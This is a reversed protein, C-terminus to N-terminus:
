QRTFEELLQRRKTLTVPRPPLPPRNRGVATEQNEGIWFEGVYLPSRNRVRLGKHLVLINSREPDATVVFDSIGEPDITATDTEVRFRSGGARPQFIVVRMRGEIIQVQATRRNEKEDFAYQNVRVSTMGSFSLFSEDSLAIQCSGQAGTRIIDGVRIVVGRSGKLTGDMGPRKINTEGCQATVMGIDHKSRFASASPDADQFALLRALILGALVSVSRNQGRTVM